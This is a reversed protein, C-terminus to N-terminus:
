TRVKIGLGYLQAVAASRQALTIGPPWTLLLGNVEADRETIAAQRPGQTADTQMFLIAVANQGGDTAAPDLHCHMGTATRRALVEGAVYIRASQELQGVDRSRNGGAESVLYAGGRVAAEVLVEPM